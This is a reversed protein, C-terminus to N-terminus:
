SCCTMCHKSIIGPGECCECFATFKVGIGVWFVGACLMPGGKAFIQHAVIKHISGSRCLSLQHKEYARIIKDEFM